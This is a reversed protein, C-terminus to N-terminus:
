LWRAGLDELPNLALMIVIQLFVIAVMPSLDLGGLTPILRRAPRLVPRTLSYLLQTAPNYTGPSIWSLVVELIIAFMVIYVALKLLMAVAVVFLGPLAPAAGRIFLTLWLETMKLALLLVVSPLDIGKLGPIFRRLQRLPPNTLAVIAQSLPNYFDARVIQFLLRLMVALTYLGFVVSVLYTGADSVYPNGM